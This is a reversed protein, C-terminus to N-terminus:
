LYFAPLMRDVRLLGARTLALDEAEKILWRQEFFHALPAAFREFIDLHFKARFRGRNVRGLKLQLVFERVFREDHNLVYAREVALRNEGLRQLYAELSTLNQCHMGDIYSFASAGLGLLDAGHYQADQYVFRQHDHLAATYASRLQYGAAELRAFGNALRARKVEWTALADADVSKDLARYLPTNLPLELQYITVSDPTMTLIRALSEMFSEDSEGLLGVILDINVIEFDFQRITAYAREVDSTLHVRGNQKLIADNLQQVGMSIRTVGGERLARLKPETVSKPACEFTAEQVAQWPFLAKLQEFLKHIQKESLLSPTGGGFYVFGLARNALAPKARYLALEKVLADIYNEILEPSKNAHSSYYCYMCRVDCFPIHVYLGFPTDGEAALPTELKAELQPACEKKWCSFPPYASVFYNGALPEDIGDLLTRPSENM